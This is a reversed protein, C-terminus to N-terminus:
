GAELSAGAPSGVRDAAEPRHDGAPGQPVGGSAPEQDIRSLLSLLVALLEGRRDGLTAELLLQIATGPDARQPGLHTRPLSERVCGTLRHLRNHGAAAGRTKTRAGCRRM